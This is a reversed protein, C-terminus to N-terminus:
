HIWVIGIHNKTEDKVPAVEQRYGNYLYNIIYERANEIVINDWTGNSASISFSLISNIDLKRYSDNTKYDIFKLRAYSDLSGIDYKYKVYVEEMECLMSNLLIEESNDSGNGTYLDINFLHTEKWNNKDKSLWSIQLIYTDQEQKKKYKEELLNHINSIIYEINDSLLIYGGPGGYGHQGWTTFYTYAVYMIYAYIIPKNYLLYKL